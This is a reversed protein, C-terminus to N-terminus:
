AVVARVGEPLGAILEERARVPDTPPGGARHAVVFGVLTERAADLVELVLPRCPCWGGTRDHEVGGGDPAVHVTNRRPDPSM